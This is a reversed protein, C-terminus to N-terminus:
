NVTKGIRRGEGDIVYGITRGDPLAVSLLNGLPDYAYSTTKGAVQKSNLEGSASYGFTAARTGTSDTATYTLLRDQADYTASATGGTGSVTIRNGNGDYQWQARVAGGVKFTVLRGAADYAYDYVTAKGLVTETNQTIRGLADRKFSTAFLPATGARSTYGIVESFGNYTFTESVSGLATGKVRGTAADRSLTLAGAKILLSDGDYSFAIAPAANVGLSALRFEPDYARKVAGAVDGTWTTQLLLAGDYRHRLTAAGPGTASALRGAADYAFSIANGPWALKGLRGIADYTFSLTRGDSHKEATLDRDKNYAYTIPGGAPTIAPPNYSATLDVRTYAFAHAPRAPPTLKTLNGNADYTYAISRGNPLTVSLPRGAKDLALTTKRGLPDTISTLDGNTYGFTTARGPAAGQTLTALKGDANYTFAVPVGGTVTRAIRGKADFTATSKRGVPTTLVATRNAATYALSYKRGRITFTDTQSTLSLPNSADGLQVTRARALSGTLGSPMVTTESAAFSAQKGWRPDLGTVASIQTGDPFASSASAGPVRSSTTTLGGISVTRKEQSGPLWAAQYRTTRGMGTTVSVTRGADQESRSLAKSGGAADTTGTLRGEADYAYTTKIGRPNTFGTLLGGAAYVATHAEGAPNTIKTLYGAAGQVLTTRKGFPSVIAVPTGSANREITTVKGNGDTVTTLRKGADYAFRFRLANTLGDITRLHRGTGDFAYIQAGSESAILYQGNVRKVTGLSEPQRTTGDGLHLTNAAPDYAHHANLTWGGLAQKRADWSADKRGPLRDSQYVLSFPTGVIEVAEGLSQNEVAIISGSVRCPDEVYGEKELRTPRITWTYTWTIWDHEPPPETFSSSGSILVGSEPLPLPDPM